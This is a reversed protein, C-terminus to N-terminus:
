QNIWQSVLNDDINTIHFAPYIPNRLSDIHLLGYILKDLDLFIAPKGNRSLEIMWVLRNM